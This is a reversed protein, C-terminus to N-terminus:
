YFYPLLFLDPISVILYWVQGLVGYPFTVLVCSFCWVCSLWSTLGKGAPSWLAAIFLCTLMVSVFCLNCFHDVFSAGGQFLCYTKKKSSPMYKNLPVLRVRIESKTQM